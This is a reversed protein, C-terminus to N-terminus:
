HVSQRILEMSEWAAGNWRLSETAVFVWCWSLYEISTIRLHFTRELAWEAHSIQHPWTCNNVYDSIRDKEIECMFKLAFQRHGANNKGNNKVSKNRVKWKNGPLPAAMFSRTKTLKKLFLNWSNWRLMFCKLRCYGIKGM